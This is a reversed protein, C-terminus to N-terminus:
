PDIKTALAARIALVSPMKEASKYSIEMASALAEALNRAADTLADRAEGLERTLRVITAQLDALETMAALGQPAPPQPRQNCAAIAEAERALVTSLQKTLKTAVACPATENCWELEVIDTSDTM